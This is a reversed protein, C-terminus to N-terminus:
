CRAEASVAAAVWVYICAFYEYMNFSIDFNFFSLKKKFLDLWGIFNLNYGSKCILIQLMTLHQYAYTMFEKM